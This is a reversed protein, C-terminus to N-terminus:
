SAFFAIIYSKSEGKGGGLFPPIKKNNALRGGTADFGPPQCALAQIHIGSAYQRAAKYLLLIAAAIWNM